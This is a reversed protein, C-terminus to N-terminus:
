LCHINKFLSIYLSCVHYTKYSVQKAVNATTELQTVKVPCVNEVRVIVLKLMVTATAFKALVVLFAQDESTVTKVGPSSPFFILYLISFQFDLESVSRMEKRSLRRPMARM